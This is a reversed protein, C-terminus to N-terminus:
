VVHAHGEGGGFGLKSGAMFNVQRYELGELECMYALRHWRM